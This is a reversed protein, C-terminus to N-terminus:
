IPASYSAPDEDLEWDASPTVGSDDDPEDDPEPEPEAEPEVEQEPEPEADVYLLLEGTGPAEMEGTDQDPEPEPKEHRTDRVRIDLPEASALLIEDAASKLDPDLYGCLVDRLIARLHTEIERVIERPPEASGVSDVYTDISGGGVLFRELAFALEVRRQLGRRHAEEACLAAVRRSLTARGADDEADLLAQLALLYDTLAEVDLARECGMEFRSLAWAIRGGHRARSVVGLFEVLEPVEALTLSWPEGRAHGGLGLPLPKWVGEDVRGWALPDLAIGGPKFLRLATLLKRFRIRSETVPIPADPALARELVCLTAPEADRDREALATPPWVAEAPADMTRGDVLVVGDGLEVRTTELVLGHVPTLVAANVTDEFLTREVSAYVREFREEPFEFSTSDEYLRELMARLAPEPDAGDPLGCVRLYVSAGAGLARAAADWTPLARLKEWRTALFQQTLPRYRYLIPGRGPEEVVDFPIEHGARLESSLLAAADLALDRLADHLARNRM